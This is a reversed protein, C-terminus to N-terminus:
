HSESVTPLERRDRFFYLWSLFDIVSRKFINRKIDLMPTVNCRSLEGIAQRMGISVIWRLPYKASVRARCCRRKLHRGGTQNAESPRSLLAPLKDIARRQTRIPEFLM